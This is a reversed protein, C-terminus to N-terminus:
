SRRRYRYIRYGAFKSGAAGGGPPSPAVSRRAIFRNDAAPRRKSRDAHGPDLVHGVTVAEVSRPRKSQGHDSRSVTVAEVSRSRKSQGHGSRSVTIAEVSRSRKSQGHGSRSVTVAEVSRSRKSQGSSCDRCEDAAAGAGGAASRRRARPNDGKAQSHKYLSIYASIYLYICIYASIYLYIYREQSARQARCSRGSRAYHYVEGGSACEM